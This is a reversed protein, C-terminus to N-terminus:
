KTYRYRCNRLNHRCVRIMPLCFWRLSVTHSFWCHCLYITTCQSSNNRFIVCNSCCLRCCVTEVFVTRLSSLLDFIWPIAAVALGRIVTLLAWIRSRHHWSWLVQVDSLQFCILRGDRQERCWSSNVNPSCELFGVIPFAQNLCYFAFMPLNQSPRPLLITTCYETPGLVVRWPRIVALCYTSLNPLWTCEM